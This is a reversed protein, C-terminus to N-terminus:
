TDRWCSTGLSFSVGKSDYKTVETIYAYLGEMMM